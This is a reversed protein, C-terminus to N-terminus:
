YLKQNCNPCVNDQPGVAFGCKSCSTPHEAGLPAGCAICNGEGVPNATGCYGCTIRSLRDSLQLSAGLSAVTRDIVKWVNDSLQINEIDQALDDLRSILHFPNRLASLASFATEGLSAAVGLWAQEGVEVMIGDEVSRISVTIATQGGSRSGTRTAIQVALKDAPGIVQAQLNGTNFAAMLANALDAPKINGHFIRRDM